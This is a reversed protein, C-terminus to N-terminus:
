GEQYIVYRGKGEEKAKYMARDALRILDEATADASASVIGISAQVQVEEGHLVFPAELSSLIREAVRVAGSLERSPLLVAFEDGGLRAVLDGERVAQNLRQAVDVLLRDGTPHGWTDNVRKFDDLDLLLLAAGASGPGSGAVARRVEQRFLARNALGTLPDHTAQHRVQEELQRRNTVDRLIMALHDPWPYVVVEYWRQEPPYYFERAANPRPQELQKQVEPRLVETLPAPFVEWAMRGVAEHLPRGILQGARHNYYILEATRGITILGDPSNESITTTFLLTRQELGAMLAALALILLGGVAVFWATLHYDPTRELGLPQAAQALTATTLAVPQLLAFLIGLLPPLIFRESSRLRGAGGGMRRVGAILAIGLLLAMPVTPLVRYQLAVDMQVSRLSLWTAATLLLGLLMGGVPATSLGRGRRHAPATAFMAAGAAVLLLLGLYPARLLYPRGWDVALLGLYLSAWIGIGVALGAVLQWFRRLPGAWLAVQVVLIWLVGMSAVAMIASLLTLLLNLREVGQWLGFPTIASCIENPKFIRWAEPKCRCL